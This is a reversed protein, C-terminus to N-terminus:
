ETPRVWSTTKEGKRYYYVRGSKPSVACRWGDPLPGFQDSLGTPQLTTVRGSDTTTLAQPDANTMAPPESKPEYKKSLRWLRAQDKDSLKAVAPAVASRQLETTVATTHAAATTTTSLDPTSYAGDDTLTDNGPASALVAARADGGNNAAPPAAEYAGVPEPHDARPDPALSYADSVALRRSAIDDDRANPLANYTSLKDSVDPEDYDTNTASQGLTKSKRKTSKRKERKSEGDADEAEAVIRELRRCADDMTPRLDPETEFCLRMLDGLPGPARAPVPLREGNLVKHCNGQVTARSVVAGDVRPARRVVVFGDNMDFCWTADDITSVRASKADVRMAITELREANDACLFQVPEGGRVNALEAASQKVFRKGRSVYMEHNTTAVIDVGAAADRFTVVAQPARRNVVLRRPTEYVLAGRKADLTAARLGRWDAVHVAGGPASRWEVRELLQELYLFGASTLLQHDRAAFCAATNPLGEWPERGSLTEYIVVGFAFVDSARSYQQKLLQEPAMWKLPGVHSKTQNKDEGQNDRSMGFDAVKPLLGESLLINRAALDRHIINEAHLHAVGKAIGNVIKLLQTTSAALGDDSRLWDDLAGKACFEVVISLPHQVLGYLQVVNQHSRMNAMKVAEQELSAIQAPDTMAEYKVEKIAVEINRWRGKYVVGFAGEGLKNGKEIDLAALLYKQAIQGTGTVTLAARGSETSRDYTRNALEYQTASALEGDRRAAEVARRNRQVVWVILCAVLLLLLLGAIVGVVIYLTTLDEPTPAPTALSMLSTPPSATTPTPPPTPPASTPPLTFDQPLLTLSTVNLAPAGGTTLTGYAADYQAGKDTAGEEHKVYAIVSGNQAPAFESLASTACGLHASLDAAFATFNWTAFDRALVFRHLRFYRVLPVPTPMPTPCTGNATQLITTSFPPCVRSDLICQGVGASPQCWRCPEYHRAVDATLCDGCTLSKSCDILEYKYPEWEFVTVLDSVQSTATVGGAIVLRNAVGAVMFGYSAHHQLVNRHWLSTYTDYLDIPSESKNGPLEVLGGVVAIFRNALTVPLRGSETGGMVGETLVFPVYQWQDSEVDYRDVGLNEYSTYRFADIGCQPPGCTPSGGTVMVLSGVSAITVAVAKHSLRSTKLTQTIVDLIDVVDSPEQQKEGNFRGGAFMVLTQNRGIVNCGPEARAQSLSFALKNTRISEVSNGAFSIREISAETLLLNSFFDDVERGGGMFFEGTAPVAVVCTEHRPVVPQLRQWEPASDTRWYIDGLTKRQTQLRSGVVVVVREGGVRMAAGATRSYLPAPITSFMGSYRSCVLSTSNCRDFEQVAQTFFNSTFNEGPPVYFVDDLVPAPTNQALVGFRARNNALRMMIKKFQGPLRPTPLQPARTPMPTPRPPVAGVLRIAALQHSRFGNLKVRLRKVPEGAPRLLYVEAGNTTANITGTFVNVYSSNSPLFADISVVASGLQAEVVVLATANAVLGFSVEIVEDTGSRTSWWTNLSDGVVRECDAIDDTCNNVSCAWQCASNVCLRDAITDDIQPSTSVLEVPPLCPPPMPTPMLTPAPADRGILLIGDIEQTDGVTTTNVRIRDSRIHGPIAFRALTRNAPIAIEGDPTFRQGVWTMTQYDFVEVGSVMGPKNNMVVIIAEGFVQQNFGIDITGNADATPPAWSEGCDNTTEGCNPAGVLKACSYDTDFDVDIKDSSYAETCDRLCCTWQCSFGAMACESAFVTSNEADPCPILSALCDGPAPTPAPTPASTPPTPMPTPASTVPLCSTINVNCILEAWMPIPCAWFDNTDISCGQTPGRSVTAPLERALDSNGSLQVKPLEWVWSPVQGNLNTNVARLSTLASPFPRSVWLAGSISSGSLELTNLNTLRLLNPISWSQVNRSVGSTFKSNNNLFFFFFFFFRIKLV